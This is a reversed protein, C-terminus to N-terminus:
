PLVTTHAQGNAYGAFSPMQMHLLSSNSLETPLGIQPKQSKNGAEYVSTNCLYM